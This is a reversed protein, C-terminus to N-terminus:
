TFVIIRHSLVEQVVYSVYFVYFVYSIIVIANNWSDSFVFGAVREFLPIM